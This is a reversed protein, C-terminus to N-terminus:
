KRKVVIGSDQLLANLEAFKTEAGPQVSVTLVPKWYMSQGAIGWSKMRDWVSSVFPDMQAQLDSEIPFPLIDGRTGTEPLLYLGENALIVQIPRTIGTAGQSRNPLGWNSGRQQALSNVDTGTM